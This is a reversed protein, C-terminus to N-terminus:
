EVSLNADEISKNNFKDFIVHVYKPAQDKSTTIAIEKLLGIKKSKGGNYTAPLGEVGFWESLNGNNLIQFKKLTEQSIIGLKKFFTFVWSMITPVNVFFKISLLEPYNSGFISIIQKTPAKVNPDMRLMSVNNYDHVQAIKNNSSDTFDLYLLSKEMLGIRWRLFQTGEKLGSASESGGYQKFLEKPNKIEGYLNWTVYKLNDKGNKFGTIVGLNNLEGDFDEEYAASLPHFKNRWNLTSVLREKAAEVDYDDAKLFKLLIENRINIDVHENTDVNICYGFIEDYDKNDTKLLITPIAKILSELKDKQDATLEVSKITSEVSGIKSNDEQVDVVPDEVAQTETM